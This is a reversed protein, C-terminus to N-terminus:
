FFDIDLKFWGKNETSQGEFKNLGKRCIKNLKIKNFELEDTGKEVYKELPKKESLLMDALKYTGNELKKTLSKNVYLLTDEM